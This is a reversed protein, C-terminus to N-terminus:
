SGNNRSARITSTSGTNSMIRFEALQLNILKIEIVEYWGQGFNCRISKIEPTFEFTGTETENIASGSYKVFTKNSNFEYYSGDIQPVFYGGSSLYSVQEWKGLIDNFTYVDTPELTDKSCSYLFCIALIILVLKKM